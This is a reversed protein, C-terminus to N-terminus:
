ITGTYERWADMLSATSIGYEAAVAAAMDELPTPNLNLSDRDDEIDLVLASIPGTMDTTDTM